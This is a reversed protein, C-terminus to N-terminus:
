KKIDKFYDEIGIAKNITALATHCEALAQLYGFKEQGLKIMSDIVASDQVEDMSRKMRNLELDKEQYRVKNSATEAQILAKDYNFCSEKVELTVDQRIKNLEQRAKDFDIEALRKDSYYDLKDLLKLKYSTTDSTTTHYSSVVPPWHEKTRSIEGTSGWFPMSAKIGAYWQQELKRDGANPDTPNQDPSAYEDKALGWQGMLDIKPWGKAKAIGQGYNYYDVMLANIKMEPRNLFAASLVTEFDVEVKKFELDEDIEIDDRPDLNMAQKLILEAVSLDGKASIIQYNAQSTQSSVNLFEIKSAVNAEFQKKVMDFTRTVEKFIDEQIRLNGKTKALTYYGKKVQLVLENRAKYYDTKTIQLNTEAQKMTFYLEGGHFIPQQGEVYQKRSMYALSNVRGKGDEFAITVTPLMNRRAEIVRLEALKVSKEAIQLPLHNKIAIKVCDDVSLMGWKKSEERIAVDIIGFEKKFIKKTKVGKDSKNEEAKKVGLSFKVEEQPPSQSQDEGRLIEEQQVEVSGSSVTQPTVASDAPGEGGAPAPKPVLVEKTIGNEEQSQAEAFVASYVPWIALGLVLALSVASKNYLQM